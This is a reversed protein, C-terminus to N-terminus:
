LGLFEIWNRVSKASERSSLVRGKEVKAGPVIKQLISSTRGFGSGGSTAFPVITKGSFDTSELFTEIIRPAEGWWIPFGIFITDYGSVDIHNKMAPRCSGDNMEVTSRSSSKSWNLDASSYPEAPEIEAIDCGIEEAFTSALRKTQDSASFYAVLTNAM